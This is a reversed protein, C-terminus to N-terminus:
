KAFFTILQSVGAIINIGAALLGFILVNKWHGKNIKGEKYRQYTTYILTLMVVSLSFAGVAPIFIGRSRYLIYSLITTMAAIFIISSIIRQKM